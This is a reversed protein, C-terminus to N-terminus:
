TTAVTFGVAHLDEDRSSSGVLLEFAGPEVVRDGHADVITCDRVAVEIQVTQEEGPALDVHRYAKLEKDAWSATTVEDRVYAQVIEHAPRTGTNRLTIRARVTDDVGLSSAELEPEGYEVTTYTLGEGFAYAPRQTLDAYRDGHQGRIQNYYTPRQGVHVAFSIPLRGAPEIHGLLLEAIARGGQMGPNAVWVLSADKVAAPLILPKSALLVVVLRTGTVALAELLARQGGILELTATSRGEGVLEVGDGVVAVVVDADRAAAVADAIMSEDPGAPVILPPRPQGDPFTAGAPDEELTLIEAGVSYTVTWDDPVLERLGDLVTTIQERPQGDPLWDVQGSSGAWDGLQAQADDALPGVVAIRRPVSSTAPAAGDARTPGEEGGELPLTGDNRLLVLSRRAVELNLATHAPAAMVEAIRREDPM